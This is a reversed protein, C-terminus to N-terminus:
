EKARRHAEHLRFAMKISALLVTEGTNKVVYGYSTIKEAKEVVESGTHNSLFLVPLDRKELIARAAGTGDLGPGLDMDMLILDISDDALAREVAHEGSHEMVVSFGHKQLAVSEALAIVAEDEVLLITKNTFNIM